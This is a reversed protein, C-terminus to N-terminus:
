LEDLGLGAAEGPTELRYLDVHYFPLRGGPHERVLNFTPSLVTSPAHGLGEALGKALCTKGAGLPGSLLVVDGARLGEAWRRSLAQTEDASRTVVSEQRM